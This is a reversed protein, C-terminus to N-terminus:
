QLSLTLEALDGAVVTVEGKAHRAPQGGRPPLWARVAHTGPPVDKILVVGNGDTVAGNAAVIWAPETDKDDLALRYVHGDLLSATVEHGAIPLQITRSKEAEIEAKFDAAAARHALVLKAPRDAASDVALSSGIVLRPALACHALRVRAEGLQAPAGDVIVLTDGIGWTTSPSVAPARPTNCPTKGPSARVAAPVNAWEVRIQVDGTTPTVPTPDPAAAADSGAEVPPPPPKKADEVARPKTSSSCAAVLVVALRALGM